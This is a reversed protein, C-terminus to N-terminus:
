RWGGLAQRVAMTVTEGLDLKVKMWPKALLVYLAFASNYTGEVIGEGYDERARPEFAELM